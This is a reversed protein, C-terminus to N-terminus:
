LQKEETDLIDQLTFLMAENTSYIQQLTNNPGLLLNFQEGEDQLYEQSSMGKLRSLYEIWYRNAASIQGMQSPDVDQLRRVNFAAEEAEKLEEIAQSLFQPSIGSIKEAVYDGAEEWSIAIDEL